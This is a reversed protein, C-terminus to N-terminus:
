MILLDLWGHWGDLTVQGRKRHEFNAQLAMKQERPSLDRIGSIRGMGEIGNSKDVSPVLKM